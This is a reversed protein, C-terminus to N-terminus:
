RCEHVDLLELLVENFKVRCDILSEHQKSFLSEAEELGLTASSNLRLQKTARLSTM